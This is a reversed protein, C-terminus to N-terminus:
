QTKEAKQTMETQQSQQSAGPQSKQVGLDQSQTTVTNKAEQQGEVQNVQSSQDTADKVTKNGKYVKGETSGKLMPKNQIPGM